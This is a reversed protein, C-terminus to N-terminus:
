NRDKFGHYGGGAVELETQSVESKDEDDSCEEEEEEQEAIEDEQEEIEEEDEDSITVNDNLGGTEYEPSRRGSADNASENSDAREREEECEDEDPFSVPSPVNLFRSTSAATQSVWEDVRRAIRKIRGGSAM